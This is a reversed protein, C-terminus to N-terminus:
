FYVAALDEGTPLLGVNNPLAAGLVIKPNGTKAINELYGDEIAKNVRRSVTSKDLEMALTLEKQTVWTTSMEGIPSKGALVKSVAQVTERIEKSVSQEVQEAMIDAVLDRVVMYDHLTAIIRGGEDEERTARHLLAHADILGLLASFDR